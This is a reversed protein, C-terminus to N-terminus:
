LDTEDGFASEGIGGDIMNRLTIQVKEVALGEFHNRLELMNGVMKICPTWESRKQEPILAQFSRLAALLEEILSASKTDNSDNKQPLKPPLFVHNIIYNLDKHM